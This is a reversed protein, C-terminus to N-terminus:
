LFLSDGIVVLTLLIIHYYHLEIYVTQVKGYSLTSNVSTWFSYVWFGFGFEFLGLIPDLKCLGLICLESGETMFFSLGRHCCSDIFLLHYYHLEIYVTQVKGYSLTSNVSTWFSYVWFGFGFEFLGLIPDLKCLGLICLESGELMFFSLGRHCCSDIFLLHYYHLEIYVTQVKGYSLTSNVSTWFSYVWFGFGFEFLGLIPDLKCLGLICLESGELMFFSLGRHCCSDIFLLHYYHLEIYVTQVKGYSLTSNVSTWFSYVWFGFGFEFLGLIPDLKCLGLICLESGELMFFSLGRHCCSDIFLLHYYHLEIYVTQVKGYSLTSNVSTWFSYVWFGFGFEFLGLIPDLKCLGLICLESGETM